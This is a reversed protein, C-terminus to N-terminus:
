VPLNAVSPSNNTHPCPDVHSPLNNMFLPRDKAEEEDEEDDSAYTTLNVCACRELSAFFASAVSTGLWRAIGDIKECSM